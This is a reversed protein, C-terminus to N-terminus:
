SVPASKEGAACWRSVLAGPSVAGIAQEHLSSPKSAADSHALHRGAACRADPAGCLVNTNACAHEVGRIQEACVTSFRTKIDAAPLEGVSRDDLAHTLRHALERSEMDGIDSAEKVEHWRKALCSTDKSGVDEGGGRARTLGISLEGVQMEGVNSLHHGGHWRERLCHADLGGVDDACSRAHTLRSSVDRLEMGGVDCGEVAEYWRKRLCSVDLGGTDGGPLGHNPRSSREQLCGANLEGTGEVSGFARILRSSLDRSEMDGVDSNEMAGRWRRRLHSAGLDGVDSPGFPMADESYGGGRSVTESTQHISSRNRELTSRALPIRPLHTWRLTLEDPSIVGACPSGLDAVPFRSGVEADTSCSLSGAEAYADRASTTFMSPCSTNELARWSARLEAASAAGVTTAGSIAPAQLGSFKWRRRLDDASMAGVDGGYGLMERALSPSTGGCRLQEEKEERLGESSSLPAASTPPRPRVPPPIALRQALNLMRQEDFRARLLKPNIEQERRCLACSTMNNAASRTLCSRCFSHGCQLEISKTCADLCIPCKTQM